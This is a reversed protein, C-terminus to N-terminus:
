IGANRQEWQDIKKLTFEHRAKLVIKLIVPPKRVVKLAVPPWRYAPVNPYFSDSSITKTSKLAM